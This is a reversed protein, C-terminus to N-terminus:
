KAQRMHVVRQPLPIEIGEKAFRKHIAERVESQVRWMNDLDKVSFFVKVEVSSDGFETFRFAPKNDADNAVDPHESVIGTVIERVKEIDTNYAVGVKVSTGVLRDPQTLNVIPKNAIDSNPLVLIDKNATRYLKTTRMGVHVVKCYTGDPLQIDDGSKFPRDTLLFMGGIFNGLSEQMAFGIVVGMVGMGAVLVTIDIGFDRLIFAVAGVVILVAGLKEAIPILVDDLETESAEAYKKMYYIFIDKFLKYIMWAAAFVFIIDFGLKITYLTKYTIPLSHMSELCMLLIFILTTPGRVIEILMDDLKTETKATLKRAIPPFVLVLLIAIVATLIVNMVFVGWHGNMWSSQFPNEFIGLIKREPIIGGGSLSTTVTQSTNWEEGTALDTFSVTLTATDVPYDRTMPATIKVAVDQYGEPYITFFEPTINEDWHPEGNTMAAHIFVPTTGNNYLSIHYTASEGMEVEGAYGDFRLVVMDSQAAFASGSLLCVSLALVALITGSVMARSTMM